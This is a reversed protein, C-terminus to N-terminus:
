PDGLESGKKYLLFARRLDKKGALGSDYFLALNGIGEIDDNKAAFKYWYFALQKNVEVGLGLDYCYGVLNQCHADGLYAADLLLPFARVYNKRKGDGYFYQQGAVSPNDLFEAM